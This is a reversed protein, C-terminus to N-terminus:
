PITTVSSTLSTAADTLTSAVDTLTTVRESVSTTANTLTSTSPTRSSVAYTFSAGGVTYTGTLSGDGPLKALCFDYTGNVNSYGCIYINAASDVAISSNNLVSSNSLTRQWQITGSINYKAILQGGCVYINGSSDVAVSSGGSGGSLTRQWQLTGSTNYKALILDFSGSVDSFGCVFVNGSSDVAVSNGRTDFDTTGLRRQWLTSGSTDFKAILCIRINIAESYGCVYVNGSADVAVAQGVNGSPDGFAKQWQIAGSTNYKAIEYSYYGVTSSTGCVYVNSSSDIAISFGSSSSSSSGLRRQWQITGSTNYKALQVVQSGSANSQGCVYVNSSSDVAVSYGTSSGAGGLSRQWLITGSANYKAIQFNNIGSTNSEGCVYVNGVSDVAVSYGYDTGSGYLLGIWYPAGLPQSPWTGAQIYQTAQELTWVGSAASTTPAVPSKTVFGGPYRKSM